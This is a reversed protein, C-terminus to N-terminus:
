EKRLIDNLLFILQEERNLTPRIKGENIFAGKTSPESVIDFCILQFDDEVINGERSEKLSGLGRSSIGLKVQAEHLAKVTKGSPTDLIQIKGMLDDNQWWVQTILHSVNKLNIVTEDTHDLEGLSRRERILQQYNSIERELVKKPYVRGNGNKANARQIIGSLFVVGSKQLHKEEENLLDQCIGDHCLESYEKLLWLGDFYQM